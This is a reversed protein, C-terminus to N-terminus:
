VSAENLGPLEPPARTSRWPLKSATAAKLRRSVWPRFKPTAESDIWVNRSPGAREHALGVDMGAAVGVGPTPPTTSESLKSSSARPTSGREDVSGEFHRRPYTPPSYWSCFSAGAEDVTGYALTGPVYPFADIATSTRRTPSGPARDTASVQRSSSDSDAYMK